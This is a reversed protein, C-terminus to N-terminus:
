KRNDELCDFCIFELSTVAIDRIPEMEIYTGTESDAEVNGCSVCYDTM